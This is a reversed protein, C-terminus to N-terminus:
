SDENEREIAAIMEQRNSEPENKELDVTNYRELCASLAKQADWEPLKYVLTANEEGAFNHQYTTHTGLGKAALRAEELWEKWAPTDPAAGSVRVWETSQTVLIAKWLALTFTPNLDVFKTSEGKRTSAPKPLRDISVSKDGAEGNEGISSDNDPSRPQVEICQDSVKFCSTDWHIKSPLAAVMWYLANMIIYAIAFGIQMWTSSNALFIVGFMLLITGTL